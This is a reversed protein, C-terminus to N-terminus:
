YYEFEALLYFVCNVEFVLTESSKEATSIERKRIPGNMDLTSIPRRLNAMKLLNRSLPWELELIKLVALHKGTLEACSSERSAPFVLPMLGSVGPVDTTGLARMWTAVMARRLQVHVFVCWVEVPHWTSGASSSLRRGGEWSRLAAAVVLASHDSGGAVAQLSAVVGGASHLGPSCSRWSGRRRRRWGDRWYNSSHTTRESIGEAQIAHLNVLKIERSGRGILDGKWLREGVKRMEKMVGRSSKLGGKETRKLVVMRQWSNTGCGQPLGLSM